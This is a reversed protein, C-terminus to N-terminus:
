LVPERDTAAHPACADKSDSESRTAGRVVGAHRGHGPTFVEVIASTEGHHRISLLIGTDRWEMAAVSAEFGM